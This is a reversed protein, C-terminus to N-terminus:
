EISELRYKEGDWTCDILTYTFRHRLQQVLQLRIKGDQITIRDVERSAMGAKMRNLLLVVDRRNTRFFQECAEYGGGEEEYWTRTQESIMEDWLLRYEQNSLCDLTNLMVHEPMLANLAITGDSREERMMFIEGQQNTFGELTREDAQVWRVETGDRDTGGEAGDVSAMRGYFGPMKRYQVRTEGCGSIVLVVLSLFVLRM